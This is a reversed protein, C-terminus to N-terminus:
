IWVASVYDRLNLGFGGKTGPRAWGQQARLGPLQGSSFPATVNLGDHGRPPHNTHRTWAFRRLNAHARQPWWPRWDRRPSAAGQLSWNQFIYLAFPNTESNQLSYHSYKLRKRRDSCARSTWICVFAKLLIQIWARIWSKPWHPAWHLKFAQGYRFRTRTAIRKQMEWFPPCMRTRTQM